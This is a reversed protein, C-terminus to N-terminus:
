PVTGVLGDDGFVVLRSVSSLWVADNFDPPITYPFTSMWTSFPTTVTTWAIGDSSKLLTAAGGVAYFQTGTWVVRRLTMTTGSNRSTWTVGDSSTLITGSAGVVVITSPSATGGYLTATTGSPQSTWTAGDPSTSILGQTGLIVFQDGTWFGKTTSQSNWSPTRGTWNVGNSTTTLCAGVLSSGANVIVTPSAIVTAGVGGCDAGGLNTWTKGDASIYLNENAAVQVLGLFSNLGPSWTIDLFPYNSDLLGFDWAIGDTSTRSSYGPGVAVVRGSPSMAAATLRVTVNRITWNLGDASTYVAGNSNGDTGVAIYESGNFVASSLIGSAGPGTTWTVGDSSTMSNYGGVVLWKGNAYVIDEPWFAMPSVQPTWDVGNTSTLLAPSSGGYPSTTAVIVSGQSALQTIIDSTPPTQVTWDIGNPSTILTGSAGGAVFQTGTWTVAYLDPAYGTYPTDVTITPAASWAIANTSYVIAGRTGVAVWTTGSKAISYFNEFKVTDPLTHGTWTRGDTSTDFWLSDTAVYTTGDWALDDAQALSATVRWVRSDTSVQYGESGGVGIYGAGNWIIKTPVDQGFLRDTWAITSSPSAGTASGGSTGGGPLDGGSPAGGDGGGGGCASLTFAIVATLFVARLFAVVCGDKKYNAM